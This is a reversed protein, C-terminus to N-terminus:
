DHTVTNVIIGLTNQRNGNNLAKVSGYPLHNM